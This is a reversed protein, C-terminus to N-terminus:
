GGLLKKLLNIVIFLIVFFNKRVAANADTKEIGTPALV